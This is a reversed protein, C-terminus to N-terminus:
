KIGLKARIAPARPDNPNATLWDLAAQNPSPTPTPAASPTITTPQGIAAKRKEFRQWEEQPVKSSGGYSKVMSALEENFKKYTDAQPAKATAETKPTLDIRWKGKSDLSLKTNHTDRFKATDRMLQDPDNDLDAQAMWTKRLDSSVYPHAAVIGLMGEAFEKSGPNHQIALAGAKEEFADTDTAVRTAMQADRLEKNLRQKELAASAAARAKEAELQLPLMQEKRVDEAHRLDMTTKDLAQKRQLERQRFFLDQALRNTKLEEMQQEAQQDLLQTALTQQDEAYRQRQAANTSAAGFTDAWEANRRVVPSIDAM